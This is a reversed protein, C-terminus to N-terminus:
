TPASRTSATATSPPRRRAPRGLTGSGKKGGSGGGTRGDSKHEASASTGKGTGGSGRIKGGNGATASVAGIVAIGVVAGLAIKAKTGM